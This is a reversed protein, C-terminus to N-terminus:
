SVMNPAGMTSDLTWQTELSRWFTNRGGHKTSYILVWVLLLSYHRFALQAKLCSEMREEQKACKRGESVKCKVESEMNKYKLNHEWLFSEAKCSQVASSGRSSWMLPNTTKQGKIWQIKELRKEVCFDICSSCSRLMNFFLSFLSDQFRVVVLKPFPAM